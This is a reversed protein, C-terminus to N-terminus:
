NKENVQKTNPVGQSRRVPNKGLGKRGGRSKKGEDGWQGLCEGVESRGGDEVGGGGNGGAFKLGGDPGRKESV